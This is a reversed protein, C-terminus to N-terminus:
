ERVKENGIIFFQVKDSASAYKMAAMAPAYQQYSRASLFDERPPDFQLAGGSVKFLSGPAFGLHRELAQAYADVTAFDGRRPFGEWRGYERLSTEADALMQSRMIETEFDRYQVLMAVDKFTVIEPFAAERICPFLEPLDGAGTSIVVEISQLEGEYRVTFEGAKLGCDLLKREIVQEQAALPEPPTDIM